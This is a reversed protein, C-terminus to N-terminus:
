SFPAKNKKYKNHSKIHFEIKQAAQDSEERSLTKPMFEMVQPDSNIKYFTELDSEKWTRLFLRDTEYNVDM